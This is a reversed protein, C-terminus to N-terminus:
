KSKKGLDSVAYLCVGMSCANATPRERATEERKTGRGDKVDMSENSRKKHACAQLKCM